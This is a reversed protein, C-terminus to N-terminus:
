EKIIMTNVGIALLALTEILWNDSRLIALGSAFSVFGLILPKKM